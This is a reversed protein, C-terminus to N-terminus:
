KISQMIFYTGALFAAIPISIKFVTVSALSYYRGRWKKMQALQLSQKKTLDQYGRTRKAEQDLKKNLYSIKASDRYLVKHISDLQESQQLIIEHLDKRVAELSDLEINLQVIKKAQVAMIARDRFVEAEQEPTIWIKEQSFTPSAFATLLLM